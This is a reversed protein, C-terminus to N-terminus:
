ACRLYLTYTEITESSGSELVAGEYNGTYDVTFNGEYNGEYNGTYDTGIYDGTYDTGLYDGTYDTGLYNGLYNGEYNGEYTPTYNGTYSATSTRSFNNVFVAGDYDATYNGVFNGTYSPSFGGTYSQPRTGDYNGLYAVQYNGEYTADVSVRTSDTIRTAAYNGVFNGAYADENVFNGTFDGIFNGTFDGTYNYVNTSTRTSNRSSLRTSNRTFDAGSVRTSTRTFNSGTEYDGIFNGTFETATYNGIFDPTVYNQSFNGAVVGEYAGEYVTPSTFNQTSDRTFTSLRFGIFNGVFDGVFDQTSTRTSATGDSNRTSTITSTSTFDTNSTRTSNTASTRTFNTNSTRTSTRTSNATRTGQSTRTSVVPATVTRRTDTATGMAKWTGTDTPAGQTASRLQYTGIGNSTAMVNTMIARGFTEGIDSDNMEQIGQFTGTLGSSRKLSVPRSETPISASDGSTVYNKVYFNYQISSSGINDSFATDIQTYEASPTSSGLKIVGAWHNDSDFLYEKLRGAITDVESSDMETLQNPTGSVFEVPYRRNSSLSVKGTMQFVDTTTTTLSGPAASDAAAYSTDTFTGINNGNTSSTTVAYPALALTPGILDGSLYDAIRLGAQYAIWEEDASDMQHLNGDIASASDLRLITTGM